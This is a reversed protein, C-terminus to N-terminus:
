ESVLNFIESLQFLDYTKSEWKLTESEYMIMLKTGTPSEIPSSIYYTKYLSGLTATMKSELNEENISNSKDLIILKHLNTKTIIEFESNPFNEKIFPEIDETMKETLSSCSTLVIVLLIQFVKKM